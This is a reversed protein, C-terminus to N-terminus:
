VEHLYLQYDLESVTRADGEDRLRLDRRAVDVSRRGAFPNMGGLDAEFLVEQM